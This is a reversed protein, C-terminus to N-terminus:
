PALAPGCRVARPSRSWRRVAARGAWEACRLRRVRRRHASPHLPRRPM